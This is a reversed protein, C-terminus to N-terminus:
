FLNVIEKYKRMLAFAENDLERLVHDNNIIILTFNEAKKSLSHHEDKFNKTSILGKGCKIAYKGVKEYLKFFETQTQNNQKLYYSKKRLLYCLRMLSRKKSEEMKKASNRMDNIIKEGSKLILYKKNLLSLIHNVNNLLCEGDRIFMTNRFFLRNIDKKLDNYLRINLTYPRKAETVLEGMKKELKVLKEFHKLFDKEKESKM